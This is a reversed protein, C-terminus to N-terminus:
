GLCLGNGGPLETRRISPQFGRRNLHICLKGGAGHRLYVYPSLSVTPFCLVHLIKVRPATIGVKAARLMAQRATWTRVCRPSEGMSVDNGWAGLARVPCIWLQFRVRWSLTGSDEGEGAWLGILSRQM